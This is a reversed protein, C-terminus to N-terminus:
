LMSNIREGQHEKTLKPRRCEELKPRKQSPEDEETQSENEPVKIIDCISRDLENKLQSDEVEPKDEVVPQLALGTYDKLFPKADMCGDCIMESCVDLWKESSGPAKM